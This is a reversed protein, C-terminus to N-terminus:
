EITCVIYRMIKIRYSSFPKEEVYYDKQPIPTLVTKKINPNEIMEITVPQTTLRPNTFRAVPTEKWSFDGETFYFHDPTFDLFNPEPYGYIDKHTPIQEKFGFYRCVGDLDGSYLIPIGNKADVTKGPEVYRPEFIHAKGSYLFVPGTLRNPIKTDSDDVTNNKVDNKACTHGNEADRLHQEEVASQQSTQATALNSILIMVGFSITSFRQYCQFIM